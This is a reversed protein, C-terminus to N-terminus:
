PRCFCSRTRPPTAPFPASYKSKKGAASPWGPPGSPKATTCAPPMPKRQPLPRPYPKQRPKLVWRFVREQSVPSFGDEKRLTVSQKERLDLVQEVLIGDICTSVLLSGLGFDMSVRGQADTLATHLTQIRSYNILQFRVEANPVPIGEATVLVTLTATRGYLATSNVVRFGETTTPAPVRSRILLAKSAASRFWGEDAKWEPECGGMYHWGDEAWFEVWAHNDDCHAWYPAYCQRAPIGVSRLAATLLTSEEGCRGQGRRCMGLPAITRDHLYSAQECCWYNVELAASLLDKDKVRPLLHNLLWERSGDLWENNVRPPLVYDYFLSEPVTATCPIERRARHSARVYSLMAEPTVSPLDHCDLGAYLIFLDQQEKPSLTDALLTLAEWVKPYDQRLKMLRPHALDIPAAM